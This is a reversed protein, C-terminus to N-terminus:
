NDIAKVHRICAMFAIAFALHLVLILWIAISTPQSFLAVVDIVTATLLSVLNGYLADVVMHIDQSRSYLFNTVAFGLLASGLYIAFHDEGNVGLSVLDVIDQAFAILALGIFLTALASIFLVRRVLKLNEPLVKNIM